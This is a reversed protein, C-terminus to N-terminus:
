GKFTKTKPNYTSFIKKEKEINEAKFHRKFDEETPTRDDKTVRSIEFKINM